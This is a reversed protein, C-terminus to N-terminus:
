MNKYLAIARENFGFVCLSVRRLAMGRFGYGVVWQMVERGYGRGWWKKALCIGVEGDADKPIEIKLMAMGVLEGSEKEEVIVFLQRYIWYEIVTQAGHIGPVIYNPQIPALVDYDSLMAVLADMDSPNYGRLKLRTTEFM